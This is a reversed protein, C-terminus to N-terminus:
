NCPPPDLVSGDVNVRGNSEVFALPHGPGTAIFSALPFRIGSVLSGGSAYSVPYAGYAQGGNMGWCLVDFGSTRACTTPGYQNLGGTVDTVSALPAGGAQLVITTPGVQYAAAGPDGAAGGYNSGWCVLTQDQMIACPTSIFTTSLRKATRQAISGAFPVKVPFYSQALTASSIGLEGAGNSGWCWVSGDTKRACVSAYGVSVEAAETFPTSKDAMVQRAFSASVADGRGLQGDAGYGWCWVSGDQTVACTTARTAGQDYGSLAKATSIQQAGSLPAGAVATLVQVSASTTDSAGLGAGLFTSDTTAAHVPFCWVAGTPTVACGMSTAGSYCGTVVDSALLPGSFTTIQTFMTGLRKWVTGDVRRVIVAGNAVDFEGLCSCKTGACVASGTCTAGGAGPCCATGITGCACVPASANSTDCSLGSACGTGGCCPENGGGCACKNADNCLLNTGCGTGECCAQTAAGCLVCSGNECTRGQTCGPVCEVVSAGGAGGEGAASTGGSGSSSTGGTSTGGARGGGNTMGNGGTGGNVPMSASGGDAPAGGDSPSGGMGNPDTFWSPPDVKRTTDADKPPAATIVGGNSDGPDACFEVGNADKVCARGTVGLVNCEDDSKCLNRCRYDTACALPVTCDSQRSCPQNRDICAASKTESDTVCWQGTACDASKSCQARCKGLACVNPDKCDSNQSCTPLSPSDTTSCAPAAVVALWAATTGLSFLRWFSLRGPPRPARHLRRSSSM